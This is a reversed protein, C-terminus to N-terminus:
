RYPETVATILSAIKEVLKPMDLLEEWPLYVGYEEPVCRVIFGPTNYRAFNIFIKDTFIYVDGSVAPGAPNVDVEKPDIGLGKALDRMVARGLKLFKAKRGDGEETPQGCKECRMGFGDIVQGDTVLAVFETAHKSM